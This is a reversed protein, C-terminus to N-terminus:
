LRRMRAQRPPGCVEAVLEELSRGSARSENWLRDAEHVDIVGHFSMWLRAEQLDHARYRRNWDELSWPEHDAAARATTAFAMAELPGDASEVILSRPEYEVSEFLVM